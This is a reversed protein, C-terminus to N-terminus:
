EIVETIEAEEKRANDLLKSDVEIVGDGEELIVHVSDTYTGAKGSIADVSIGVLGGFVTKGEVSRNLRLMVSTYGDLEILIQKDRGKRQVPVVCPTSGLVEDNISVSAGSPETTFSVDKHKENRITACGGLLLIMAGAIGIWLVIRM